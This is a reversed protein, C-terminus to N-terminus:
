FAVIRRVLSFLGLISKIKVQAVVVVLWGSCELRNTLSTLYGTWFSACDEHYPDLMFITSRGSFAEAALYISHLPARTLHLRYTHRTGMRRGRAVKYAADDSEGSVKGRKM